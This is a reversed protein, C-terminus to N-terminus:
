RSLSYPDIRLTPLEKKATSRRKLFQHISSILSDGSDLSTTLILSSKEGSPIPGLIRTSQPLREEAIAIELAKKLRVIEQNNMSLRLARVYPPLHLDNRENLERHIMPEPNWTSIANVLAEGGEQIMIAVGSQRVQAMHSFYMERVREQSRMDPQSIFRDGELIVVASYGEVNRPAMNPTSVVYGASPATEIPHESTSVAGVHGPLLLGLDHLHRDAGRSLLSHQTSHCWTCSWNPVHKSCHSCSIQSKAGVLEHSGGCDCRSITKCQACRIAQAYGKLPVIFLVPGGKIAQRVLTLARSPLLEGALSPFLYPRLRAKTRKFEIWREDILRAIESSPSYGCFYLNVSELKSRMLAVDRVNWGPSRKEYHNESGENYILISELNMVPAFIASRTGIVVQSRGTRIELFARYRDSKSLSSDLVTFGISQSSLADILFGLERQEPVIVLVSGKKALISVQAALLDSKDRHPPMQLFQRKPITSKRKPLSYAAKFDKEVSIVRDAIASRIIDFPHAAYRTTLEEILNLIEPSLPPIEGLVKSIAKLNGTVPSDSIEIVAAILERGNFPVTVLSGIEVRNEMSSPILYSFPEDLHYVSTDVWVRAIHNRMTSAVPQAAVERKLTLGGKVKM